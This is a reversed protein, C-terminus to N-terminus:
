DGKTIIREVEERTVAYEEAVLIASMRPSFFQIRERFCKVIRTRRNDTVDTFTIIEAEDFRHDYCLRTFADVSNFGRIATYEVKDRVIYKVLFENL